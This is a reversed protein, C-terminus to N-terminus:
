AIGFCFWKMIDSSSNKNLKEQHDKGKMHSFCYKNRCYWFPPLLRNTLKKEDMM